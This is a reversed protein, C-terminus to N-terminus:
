AALVASAISAARIVISLMRQELEAIVPADKSDITEAAALTLHAAYLVDKAHARYERRMTALAAEADHVGAEAHPAYRQILRALPGDHGPAEAAAHGAAPPAPVAAPPATPHDTVPQNM